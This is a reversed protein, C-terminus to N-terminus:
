EKLLDNWNKTEVNASDTVFFVYSCKFYKGLKKWNTPMNKAQSLLMEKSEAPFALGVVDSDNVRDTLFLLEGLAETFNSYESGRGRVVVFLKKRAKAHRLIMICETATCRVALKKWENHTAFWQMLPEGVLVYDDMKKDKKFSAM